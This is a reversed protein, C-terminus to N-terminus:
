LWYYKGAMFLTVILIGAWVRWERHRRVLSWDFKDRLAPPVAFRPFFLPVEKRYTSFEEKFREQLFDEERKMVTRYMPVFLLVFGIVVWANWGMLLAGCAMVFSGFYLPNRTLSYPGERALYQQKRIHGSAWVRFVAGASMLLCGAAITGPRPVALILFAAALIWTIAVRRRELFPGAKM